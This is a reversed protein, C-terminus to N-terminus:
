YCKLFESFDVLQISRKFVGLSSLNVIGHPLYNWVNVVRESFFTFSFFSSSTFVYFSLSLLQTKLQVTPRTFMAGRVGDFTAFKSIWARVLHTKQLSCFRHRRAPASAAREVHTPWRALLREWWAQRTVAATLLRVNVFILFWLSVKAWM